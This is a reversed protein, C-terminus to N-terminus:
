NNQMYGPEADVDMEGLPRMFTYKLPKAVWEDGSERVNDATVSFPLTVVWAALGVASAVLTMPRVVVADAFMEGGTPKGEDYRTRSDAAAVSVAGIGLTLIMAVATLKSRLM